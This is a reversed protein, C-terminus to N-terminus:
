VRPQRAIPRPDGRRRRGSEDSVRAGRTATEDRQRRRRERSVDRQCPRADDCKTVNPRADDCRERGQM